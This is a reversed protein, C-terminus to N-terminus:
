IEELQHILKDKCGEYWFSVIRSLLLKEYEEQSYKYIKKKRKRM